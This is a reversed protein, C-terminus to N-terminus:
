LMKVVAAKFDNDSLEMMQNLTINTDTSQKKENLNDNGQNKTYHNINKMTVQVDSCM